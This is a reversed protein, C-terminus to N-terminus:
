SFHGRHDPASIKTECALLNTLHALIFPYVSPCLSLCRFRLRGYLRSWLLNDYDGHVVGDDDDDAHDDGWGNQFVCDMDDNRQFYEWTLM